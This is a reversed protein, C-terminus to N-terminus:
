GFRQDAFWDEEPADRLKQLHEDDAEAETLGKMFAAWGTAQMAETMQICVLDAQLAKQEAELEAFEDSLRREGGKYVPM